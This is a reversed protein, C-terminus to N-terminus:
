RAEHEIQAVAVGPRLADLEIMVFAALWLLADYADFWEGRWAWAAVAGALATYLAAAVGAFAARRRQVAASFRLEIELLVVVAIWLWANAADLWQREQVYRIAALPIALAAVLRIARIGATATRGSLRPNHATELVFLALLILWAASDVAQTLTGSYAYTGVNFALLAFIALKCGFYWRHMAGAPPVM